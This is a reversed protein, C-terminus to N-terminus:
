RKINCGVGGKRLEELIEPSAMYDEVAIDNIKDTDFDELRCEWFTHFLIADENTQFVLAAKNNRAVYAMDVKHQINKNSWMVFQVASNADVTGETNYLWIYCIGVVPQDLCNKRVNGNKDLPLGEVIKGLHM